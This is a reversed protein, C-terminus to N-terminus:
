FHGQFVLTIIFANFMKPCLLCIFVLIIHDFYTGLFTLLLLTITLNKYSALFVLSSISLHQLLHGSFISIVRLFHSIISFYLSSHCCGGGGVKDFSLASSSLSSLPSSLASSSSSTHTCAHAQARMHTSTYTMFIIKFQQM